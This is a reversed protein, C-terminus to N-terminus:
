RFRDGVIWGVLSTRTGATVKTVRHLVFSPFVHVAGLARSLPKPKRGTLMQLDGGEYAAPDALQVVVTLKRAPKGDDPLTRDMHWDYHGGGEADYRTLQLPDHFGALHFGFADRNLQGSLAELREFLWGADHRHLWRLHASRYSRDVEHAASVEAQSWGREPATAIIRRVEDADFAALASACLLDQPPDLAAVPASDTRM